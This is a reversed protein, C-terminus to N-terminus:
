KLTATLALHAGASGGNLAIDRSQHQNLLFRYSEVVDELPAPFAFEPVLRYDSVYVRTRTVGATQHGLLIAAEGGGMLFGDGHLSGTLTTASAATFSDRTTTM